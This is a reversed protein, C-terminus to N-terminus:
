LDGGSKTIYGRNLGCFVPDVSASSSIYLHNPSIVLQLVAGAGVRAADKSRRADQSGNLM